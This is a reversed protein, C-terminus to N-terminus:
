FANIISVFLEFYVAQFSSLEMLWFRLELSFLIMLLETTGLSKDSNAVNELLYFFLDWRKWLIEVSLSLWSIAEAAAFLSDM